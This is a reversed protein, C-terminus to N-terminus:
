NNTQKLQQQVLDKISAGDITTDTLDKQDLARALKIADVVIMYAIENSVESDLTSGSYQFVRVMKANNPKNILTGENGSVYFYKFPMNCVNSSQIPNIKSITDCIPNGKEDIIKIADINTVNISKPLIFTDNVIDIDIPKPSNVSIMSQQVKGRSILSDSALIAYNAYDIGNMNNSGRIDGNSSFKLIMEGIQRFTM